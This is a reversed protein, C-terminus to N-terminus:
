VEVGRDTLLRIFRGEWEEKAELEDLYLDMTIFAGSTANISKVLATYMMVKKKEPHYGLKAADEVTLLSPHKHYREDKGDSCYIHDKHKVPYHKIPYTGPASECVAFGDKASWALDGPKFECTM